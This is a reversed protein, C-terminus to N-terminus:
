NVHGSVHVNQDAIMEAYDDAYQNQIDTAAKIVEDNHRNVEKLTILLDELAKNLNEM